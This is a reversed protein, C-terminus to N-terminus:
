VLGTADFLWSTDADLLREEWTPPASDMLTKYDWYDKWLVVKDGEVRHVSCFPLTVTEGTPWGWNEAHEVMVVDGQAIIQGEVHEYTVLDELGLRLRAVIGAPGRGATSPGTPVDYYISDDTFFTAIRAWDRSYVAEWMREVVAAPADADTM